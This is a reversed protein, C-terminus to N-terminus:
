APEAPLLEITMGQADSMRVGEPEVPEARATDIRDVVLPNGAVTFMAVDGDRIARVRREAEENGAVRAEMRDAIGQTDLAEEALTGEWRALRRGDPSLLTATVARGVLSRVRTVVAEFEVPAVYPLKRM